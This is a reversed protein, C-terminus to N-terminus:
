NPVIPRHASTGKATDTEITHACSRNLRRALRDCGNSANIANTLVDGSPGFAFAQNTVKESGM